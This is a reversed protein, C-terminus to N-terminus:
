LSAPNGLDGAAEPPKAMPSSRILGAACRALLRKAATESMDVRGRYRPNFEAGSVQVIRIRELELDKKISDKGDLIRQVGELFSQHIGDRDDSGVSIAGGQEVGIWVDPLHTVEVYKESADALTAMKPALKKGSLNKDRSKTINGANFQRISQWWSGEFGDWIERRVKETTMRGSPADSHADFQATLYIFRRQLAEPIVLTTRDELDELSSARRRLGAAYQQVRVDHHHLAAGWQTFYDPHLFAAPLTNRCVFLWGHDNDIAEIVWDLASEFSSSSSLGGGAQGSGASRDALMDQGVSVTPSQAESDTTRDKLEKATRREDMHVQESRISARAILGGAEPLWFDRQKQEEEAVRQGLKMKPDKNLFHTMGAISLMTTGEKPSADLINSPPVIPDAGGSIFLMRLGYESLREKYSGRDEQLFVQEFIRQFYGFRQLPMGVVKSVPMPNTRSDSESAQDPKPDQGLRGQLMSNSLEPRLAHLVSQWEEPDAFATPSLASLAGGSCITTCSSVVQPWAFFVSQALFGGLSYGVVHVRLSEPTQASDRELVTRLLERTEQIQKKTTQKGIRLSDIRGADEQRSRMEEAVKLRDRSARFLEGSETHLATCMEEAEVLDGGVMWDEADSDAVMSLLWRVGVVYRLFQRFLEGADNLYRSLPTEAFPEPFSSHMLHGPFPMIVCAAGGDDNPNSEQQELIWDALRYYLKLDGAENLGNHLIFMRRIANQKTRTAGRKPRQLVRVTHMNPRTLSKEYEAMRNIGYIPASPFPVICEHLRSTKGERRHVPVVRTFHRAPKSCLDWRDLNEGWTSSQLKLRYDREEPRIVALEELKGHAKM